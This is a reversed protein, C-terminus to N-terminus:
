GLDSLRPFLTDWPAGDHARLGPHLGVASALRAPALVTALDYDAQCQEISYNRVGAQCLTEHYLSVLGPEVERRTRPELMSRIASAVDIVGRGCTMLQWDIFIVPRTPDHSFFLNDGQVDNHILTRPGNEFLTTAADNLRSSIWTKTASVDVDASPSLRSLFSPWSREFVETVAAPALMSPLRTWPQDRVAPDEWWRAHLAALAVLVATVDEVTGEAVSDGNRAPHLDELLLLADGTDPDAEALYCTPTRVPTVQALTRYFRVERDFFGMAQLQARLGPDAPPLKAILSQPLATGVGDLHVRVLTSAIGRESTQPEVRCANVHVDTDRAQFVSTVFEPSLDGATMTLM